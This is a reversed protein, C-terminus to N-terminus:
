CVTCLLARHRGSCGRATRLPMSSRILWLLAWRRGGPRGPTGSSMSTGQQVVVGRWASGLWSLQAAALPHQRTSLVKEQCHALEELRLWEPKFASFGFSLLNTTARLYQRSACLSFFLLRAPENLAKVNIIVSCVFYSDRLIYRLLRCM